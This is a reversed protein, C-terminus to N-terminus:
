NFDEIMFEPIKNEDNHKLIVTNSNKPRKVSRSLRSDNFYGNVMEM